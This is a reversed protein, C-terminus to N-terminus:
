GWMSDQSIPGMVGGPLHFSDLGVSSLNGTGPRPLVLVQPRLGEDSGRLPGQPHAHPSPM